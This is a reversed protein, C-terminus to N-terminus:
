APDSVPRVVRPASLRRIPSPANEAEADAAISAEVALKSIAVTKLASAEVATAADVSGVAVKAATATAAAAHAADLAAFSASEAAVKSRRAAVVVREAVRLQQLADATSPAIRRKTSM